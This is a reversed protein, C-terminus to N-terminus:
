PLWLPAYAIFPLVYLLGTPGVNRLVNMVNAQPAPFTLAGPNLAQLVAFKIPVGNTGFDNRM